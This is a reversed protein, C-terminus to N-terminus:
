PRPREVYRARWATKRCGGRIEVMSGCDWRRRSLVREESFAAISVMFIAFSAKLMVGALAAKEEALATRV